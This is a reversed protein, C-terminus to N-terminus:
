ERLWGGHIRWAAAVLREVNLSLKSIWIASLSPAVYACQAALAPAFVVAFGFAMMNRM